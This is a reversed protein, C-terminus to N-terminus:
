DIFGEEKARKYTQIKIEKDDEPYVSLIDRIKNWYYKITRLSKYQRKAIATDKLDEIFALQIVEFWEPKLELESIGVDRTHTAGALALNVKKSFDSLSTKNAVTFGGQYKEFEHRVQVLAKGHSTLVVIHLEPDYDKQMVTRLIQIGTELKASVGPREPIALDLVLLNPQFSNIQNLVDQATQATIIEANPHQKRIEEVTGALIHEHDDVVLVKLKLDESLNQSM